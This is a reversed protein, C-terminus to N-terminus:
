FLCQKKTSGLNKTFSSLEEGTLVRDPKKLIKKPLPKFADAAELVRIRGNKYYPRQLDWVTYGLWGVAVGALLWASSNVIAVLSIIVGGAIMLIGNVAMRKLLYAKENRYNM